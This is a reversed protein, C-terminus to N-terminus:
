RAKGSARNGDKGSESRARKGKGYWKEHKERERRVAQAAVLKARHEASLPKGIRAALSAAIAARPVFGKQAISMRACVEPSRKKGTQSAIRKALAEPDWKFGKLAASIKAKVDPPRPACRKDPTGRMKKVLANWKKTDERSLRPKEVNASLETMETADGFRVKFRHGDACVFYYVRNTQRSTLKGLGECRPCPPTEYSQVFRGDASHM